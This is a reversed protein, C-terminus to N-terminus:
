GRKSASRSLLGLYEQRDYASFFVNMRSTERQAVHHPFDPVVGRAIRAMAASEADTEHQKDIAAYRGGSNGTGAIYIQMPESHITMKNVM